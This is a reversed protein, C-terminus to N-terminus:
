VCRCESRSEENVLPRVSCDLPTRALGEVSPARLLPVNYKERFRMLSLFHIRAARGFFSASARRHEHMVVAGPVAVVRYGAQWVRACLDVDEMYLFFSEDMGGIDDFVSRRIMFGAGIVWDAEFVKESCWSEVMLHRKVRSRLPWFMGLPTRRGIVDVLSYFRRAAHQRHGQPSVLDLGVVAVSREPDFAALAPVTSNETFYTDPNLILLFERSCSRAALNVGAGFGLNTDSRIIRVQSIAAVFKDYSGDPSANDVVVIQEPRAIGRGLISDVCRVVSDATCYNVIIVEFRADSSM